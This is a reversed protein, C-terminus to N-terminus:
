FGVEHLSGLDKLLKHVKDEVREQYRQQAAVEVDGLRIGVLILEEKEPM